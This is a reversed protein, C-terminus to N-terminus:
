MGGAPGQNKHHYHSLDLATKMPTTTKFHNAIQALHREM